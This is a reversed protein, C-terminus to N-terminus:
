SFGSPPTLNATHVAFIVAFAVLVVVVAAAQVLNRRERPAFAFGAAVVAGTVLGGVHGQWSIGPVSFTIILNLIIVPVISAVSRGLKRLVIVIASFLGFIAGSAGVTETTPGALLYACLGGGLGCLFYLVTFRLRGLMAELPRGLQWLVWMNLGLHLLGYHLFMSTLLRYYQGDAMGGQEPYIYGRTPDDPLPEFRSLYSVLSGWHTLPTQDGILGGMGGGAVAGTKGSSIISVIFVLVNVVILTITVTGAAGAGTGGFVTRAPRQTKAGARVCEPCQFGVSAENMCDPCIPRDCRTCRVYTERDSHRYCVPVVNAPPQTMVVFTCQGAAPVTAVSGARPGPPAGSDPRPGPVKDSTSDAAWGSLATM